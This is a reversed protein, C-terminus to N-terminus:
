NITVGPILAFSFAAGANGISGLWFSGTPGTATPNRVGTLFISGGALLTSAGTLDVRDTQASLSGGVTSTLLTAGSADFGPPFKLTMHGDTGATNTWRIILTYDSAGAATSQMLVAAGEIPGLTTQFDAEVTTNGNMTLNCTLEFGSCGGSWGLLTTSATSPSATLTVPAGAAFPASCAGPAAPVIVTQQQACGIGAPNSTVTGSGFIPSVQMTLTVASWTVTNDTSTSALNFNGANDLFQHAPVSLVVTGPGTMGGVIVTFTLGDDMALANAITAGPASSGALSLLPVVHTVDGPSDSFHVTFQIFSASTPDAQGAAQNVTITPADNDFSAQSQAALNPKGQFSTVTGAPISLTVLGTGQMGTVHVEWDNASTAFANMALTGGVTSGALSLGKVNQSVGQNWHVFFEIPSQNNSTRPLATIAASLPLSVIESITNDGGAQAVNGNGAADTAANANVSLKATLHNFVASGDAHM